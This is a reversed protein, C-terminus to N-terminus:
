FLCNGLFIKSELNYLLLQLAITGIEVSSVALRLLVDETKQALFSSTASSMLLSFCSVLINPIRSAHLTVDTGVPGDGTSAM